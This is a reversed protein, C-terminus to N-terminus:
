EASGPDSGGRKQRNSQERKSMQSYKGINAVSITTSHLLQLQFLLIIKHYQTINLTIISKIIFYINTNRRIEDKAFELEHRLQENEQSQEDLKDELCSQRLQLENIDEKHGHVLNSISALVRSGDGGGSTLLGPPRRNPTCSQWISSAGSNGHSSM